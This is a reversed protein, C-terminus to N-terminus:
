WTLMFTPNQSSSAQATAAALNGAAMAAQAAQDRDDSRPGPKRNFRM